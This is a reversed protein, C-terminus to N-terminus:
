ATVVRLGMLVAILMGYGLGESVSAYATGPFQVHWADAITRGSYIGTNATFTPSKKLNATKWAAYCATIRADMAAPTAVTPAIGSPYRAGVLDKRSGFPYGDGGAATAAVPTPVRATLATASDAGATPTGEGGGGGCGALSLLVTASGGQLFIRRKMHLM